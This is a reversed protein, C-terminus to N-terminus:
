LGASQLGPTPLPPLIAVWCGFIIVMAALLAAGQRISRVMKRLHVHARVPHVVAPRILAPEHGRDTRSPTRGTSTSSGGGNTGLEKIAEM